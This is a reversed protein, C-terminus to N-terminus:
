PQIETKRNVVYIYEIQRRAGTRETEFGTRETENPFLLFNYM